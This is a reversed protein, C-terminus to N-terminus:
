TAAEEPRFTLNLLYQVLDSKEGSLLGLGMCTNYDDGVNNM